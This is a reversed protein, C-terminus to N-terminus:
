PGPARGSFSGESRICVLRVEGFETRDVHVPTSAEVADGYADSMYGM